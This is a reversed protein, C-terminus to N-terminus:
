ESATLYQYLGQLFQIGGFIIAGWAVFYRGGGSSVASSYTAATVIIGGICWLAGYLMNKGGSAKTVRATEPIIKIKTRGEIFGEHGALDRIKVWDQSDQKVVDTLYFQTNKKYQTTVASQASPEAWVKVSGDLLTARKIHYIRTEGPLYGQQGNPLTVAVWEKGDKKKVSGLEVESGIALETISLSNMNIDNYVRAPQEIIRAKM